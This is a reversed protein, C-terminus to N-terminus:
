RHLGTIMGARERDRGLEAKLRQTIQPYLRRALKEAQEITMSDPTFPTAPQLEPLAAIKPGLHPLLREALKALEPGGFQELPDFKSPPKTPDESRPASPANGQEAEHPSKEKRASPRAFTPAMGVFASFLEGVFRQATPMEESARSAATRGSQGPLPLSRGPSPAEHTGVRQLPVPPRALLAVPGAARSSDRPVFVPPAPAAPGSPGLDAPAIRQIPVAPPVPPSHDVPAARM